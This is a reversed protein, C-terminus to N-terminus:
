GDLQAGQQRKGGVDGGVDVAATTKDGAHEVAAVPETVAELETM